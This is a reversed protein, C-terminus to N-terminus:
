FIIIIHTDLSHIRDLTCDAMHQLLEKHRQLKETFAVRDAFPAVNTAVSIKKLVEETFHALYKEM